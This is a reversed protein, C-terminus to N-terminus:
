VDEQLVLILAHQFAHLLHLLFAWALMLGDIIFSDDVSGSQHGYWFGPTNGDKTIESFRTGRLLLIIIVDRGLDIPRRFYNHM